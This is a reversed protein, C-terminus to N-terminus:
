KEKVNVLKMSMRMNNFPKQDLLAIVTKIASESVKVEEGNNLNRIVLM